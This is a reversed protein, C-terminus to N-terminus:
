AVRRRTLRRVAGLAAMARPEAKIRRKAALAGRLAAAYVHGAPTCPVVVDVLEERSDCIHRKYRAEGVGLDFIVRGRRCQEAVIRTVLVEGPSLRAAEDDQAFSLFMGSLRQPSAAGGFAAVIRGGVELGYLEVARTPSLAGARIASLVAEDAFPDSVGLDAFRASKQQRFARLLRDIDDPTTAELLEVPGLKGLAREKSRLKKRADASMSRRLTAEGDTLLDLRYVPSASPRGGHAFPNPRGGLEVPVDRLTIADLRLARGISRLLKPGEQPGLAALFPRSVVPACLNVHKGGVHAGNRLGLQCRRVIPLVLAPRRASDRVVAVQIIGGAVSAFSKVWDFRAYPSVNEEQELDRWLAETPALDPAVTVEIGALASERGSSLHDPALALTSAM